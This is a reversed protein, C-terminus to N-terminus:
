LADEIKRIAEDILIDRTSDKLAWWMDDGNFPGVFVEDVEFWSEHGPEGGSAYSPPTPDAAPTYEGRLTIELEGLLVDVAERTRRAM